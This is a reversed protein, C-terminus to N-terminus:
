GALLSWRAMARAQKRMAAVIRQVGREWNPFLDVYQYERTIRAPVRCEELRVPILFVEDLPLRRECDLAYRLESQFGGRKGVARESFCAVFLDSVSIAQEISRPWNQGPLLRKRDLWADFGHARFDEYLREVLELDEIVYALFVKPKTFALFEFGGRRDPRFQGLGDIEVSSGQELCQRVIRAVDAGSNGNGIAM